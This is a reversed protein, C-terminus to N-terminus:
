GFIEAVTIKKRNIGPTSKDPDLADLDEPTIEIGQYGLSILQAKVGIADVRSKDTIQENPKDLLDPNVALWANATVEDVVEIGDELGLSDALVDDTLCILCKSLREGRPIRGEYEPKGKMAAAIAAHNDEFAKPYNMPKTGRTGEPFGDRQEGHARINVLIYKM